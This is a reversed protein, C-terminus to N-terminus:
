GKIIQQAVCDSEVGTPPFGHEIAVGIKSKPLIASTDGMSAGSQLAARDKSTKAQPGRRGGGLRLSKPM